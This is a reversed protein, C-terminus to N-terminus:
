ICISLVKGHLLTRVNKADILSRGPIFLSTDKLILGKRLASLACNVNLRNKELISECIAKM